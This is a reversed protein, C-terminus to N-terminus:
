ETPKPTKEVRNGSIIGIDGSVVIGVPDKDSEFVNGTVVPTGAPEAPRIGVSGYNAVHNDCATVHWGSHIGIAVKANDFICNNFVDAQGSETEEFGIGVAKNRSCENGAIMPRSNHQCGIGALANERCRNNRIISQCAEESGIGAM